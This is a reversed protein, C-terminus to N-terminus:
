EGTARVTNPDGRRSSLRECDDTFEAEAEEVTRATTPFLMTIEVPGRTWFVQKRGAAGALVNYGDLEVWGDDALMRTLGSVIVVTARKILAGTLVVGGESEIRENWPLRITRAYMGAHLLHETPIELQECRELSIDELACIAALM